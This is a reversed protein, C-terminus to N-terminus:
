LPRPAAVGAGSEDGSAVTFEEGGAVDTEGTAGVGVEAGGSGAEAAAMVAGDGDLVPASDAMVAVGSLVGDGAAGVAAEGDIEVVGTDDGDLTGAAVAEDVGADSAAPM